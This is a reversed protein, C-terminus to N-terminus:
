TQVEWTEVTRVARRGGFHQRIETDAPAGGVVRAAMADAEASVAPAMSWTSVATLPPRAYVTLPEEVAPWWHRDRVSHAVAVREADALAAIRARRLMRVFRPVSEEVVRTEWDVTARCFLNEDPLGSDAVFEIGSRYSEFAPSGLQEDEDLDRFQGPAFEDHTVGGLANAGGLTASEIDWRQAPEVPTRGFRQIDIGFPLVRQRAALRGHPHVRGGEALLKNAYPSLIVPSGAAAAPPVVAWAEPRQFALRLEHELDPPPLLVPPPPAGWSEDFDFSASFLWLDISGRGSARWPNPGQLTLDFAIGLLSEGFVEVALAGRMSATFSLAPKFYILVDLGFNGKLGCDAIEAAFDLQAGFQATNSTIALYAKCRLQLWPVPSLNMSLRNLAPVGRPISFAPHFGGASLIFTADPGGRSLVLVDGNLPIGAMHSGNLSAMLFASPEASDYQGAFTAKLEILPVAPDPLAVRLVGLVSLRVPDPLEAVVAASLSVMRGGWTVRFMPGVLIRGPAAPFLAPLRPIVRGAAEVPDPPFLLEGATGDSIASILADRNIARNVGVVGGIGGLAFGLGIQLGPEPFTVGMLVVFSPGESGDLSLVGFATATAAPLTASLTGAWDSLGQRRELRGRLQVPPLPLDIEIKEPLNKALDDFDLGLINSV